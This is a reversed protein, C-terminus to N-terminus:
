AVVGVSRWPSVFRAASAEIQDIAARSVEFPPLVLETM